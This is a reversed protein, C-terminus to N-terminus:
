YSKLKSCKKVVLNKVEGRRYRKIASHRKHSTLDGGMKIIKDVSKLAVKQRNDKAM